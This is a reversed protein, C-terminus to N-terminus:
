FGGREILLQQIEIYTDAGELLAAVNQGNANAYRRGGELLRKAEQFVPLARRAAAVKQAESANSGPEQIKAIAEGQKYRAYGHFFNLESTVDTNTEFEKAVEIGAIAAGYDAPETSAHQSWANQFIMRAAQNSDFGAAVARKLLPVAEDRRGARMLMVAQRQYLQPYEPNIEGVREWAAIAEDVREARGLAQAYAAWLREADGFTQTFRRGLAIAQDTDGLQMQANVVNTLYTVNTSDGKTEYVRTLDGIATEYLERVEPSLEPIGDSGVPVGQMEQQALLFAYSGRREYLDINADPGMGEQILQMAGRYDGGTALDYAIRLRVVAADTNFELYRSFYDLAQDNDGLETALFGGLYLADSNAPNLELVVEVKELAAENEGAERHIQAMQFQVAEDEPNMALTEGCTRRADDLQDLSAYYFCNDRAAELQTYSDFADYIRQAAVEKEDKHITFPDVSFSQGGPIGVFQISTFEMMDNTADRYNICVVVQANVQPAFQRSGICDLDEIKVDIKKLGDRIENREIAVHRIASEDIIERLEKAVDKGFGDSTGEANFLDPIFVRFRGDQAAADAPALMAGILAVGAAAVLHRSIRGLM